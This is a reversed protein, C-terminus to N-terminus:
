MCLRPPVSNLETIGCFSVWNTEVAATACYTLANAGCASPQINSNWTTVAGSSLAQCIYSHWPDESFVRIFPHGTDCFTHCALSGESSLPWSHRSYARWQYHHRKWILSFNELPILCIFCITSIRMQSTQDLIEFIKFSTPLDYTYIATRRSHSMQHYWACVSAKLFQTYFAVIHM